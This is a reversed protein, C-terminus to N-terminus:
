YREARGAMVRRVTEVLVEFRVPKVLHADFGAARSKAQDEEMGYGSLAIAPVPRIQKLQRVLELGSADPLGLDSIVLEFSATKAAQLAEGASAVATVHCGLRKLLITFGRRTDAHDEVLLVPCDIGAGLGRPKNVATEAATSALPLRLTFSAGRGAGASGAAITGGHLEILAKAIALGLGLGGFQRTIERSGQEFAEFVHPLAEAAIGIGSDVVDIRIHDKEETTSIEIRGGAPTFKVANKVVNWIVQQIRAGDGHV